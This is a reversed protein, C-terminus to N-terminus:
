NDYFWHKYGLKVNIGSNIVTLPIDKTSATTASKNGVDCRFVMFIQGNAIDASSGSTGSYRVHHGKGQNWKIPMTFTRCQIDGGAVQDGPLYVKRSAILRYDQYHDMNRTSTMDIVGSFVSTDYLDTIPATTAGSSIAGLPIGKALWLEVRFNLPTTITSSQQQIQFQFFSSCIKISNGNRTSVDTGQSMLPTVDFQRPGSANGDVQGVAFSAVPYTVYKKEANVMSVVRAVDKVMRKYKPNGGKNTYRKKVMGVGKRVLGRGAKRVVRKGYRGAWAM